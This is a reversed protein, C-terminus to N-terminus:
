PRSESQLPRNRFISFGRNGAIVISDRVKIDFPALVERLREAEERDRVSPIPPGHPHNHAMIMSSANYRLALEMVQRPFAVVQDVTGAGMLEEGLVVGQQDLFILLLKEEKVRAFRAVLFREIEKPNSLIEPSGPEEHSCRIGIEGVLRLLAATHTRVGEVSTLEVTSAGLVGRLDGFRELLEEALPRVDKRPIAYTLLLEIIERDPLGFAEERLFREKLRQRHGAFESRGAESKETPDTM